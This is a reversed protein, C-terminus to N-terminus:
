STKSTVNFLQDVLKNYKKAALFAFYDTLTRSFLCHFPGMPYIPITHSVNTHVPVLKVESLESVTIHSLRTNTYMLQKNEQRKRNM